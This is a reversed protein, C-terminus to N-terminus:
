LYMGNNSNHEVITEEKDTMQKLDVEFSSSPWPTGAMSRTFMTTDRLPCVTQGEVNTRPGNCKTNGLVTEFCLRTLAIGGKAAFPSNHNVEDVIADASELAAVMPCNACAKEM